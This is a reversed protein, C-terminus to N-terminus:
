PGTLVGNGRKQKEQKGEAKGGEGREGGGGGGGVIVVVVVVVM